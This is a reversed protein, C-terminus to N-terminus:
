IKSACTWAELGQTKFIHKAMKVNDILNNQYDLKLRIAEQDWVQNIQFLGRDNTPSTLVKGQKNFQRMGSECYAIKIM